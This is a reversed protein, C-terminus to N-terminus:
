NVLIIQRRESFVPDVPFTHSLSDWYVGVDGGHEKRLKELEEILKDLTM